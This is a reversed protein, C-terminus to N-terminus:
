TAANRAAMTISCQSSASSGNGASSLSRTARGSERASILSTLPPIWSEPLRNAMLLERLHRADARDSKARKKNGRMAATEAPEALHVRAGVRELSM